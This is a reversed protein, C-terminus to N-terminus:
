IASERIQEIRGRKFFYTNKQMKVYGLAFLTSRFSKRLILLPLKQIHQEREEDLVKTWIILLWSSFRILESTTSRELCQIYEVSILLVVRSPHAKEEQYRLVFSLLLFNERLTHWLFWLHECIQCIRNLCTREAAIIGGETSILAIKSFIGVYCPKWPDSPGVKLNPLLEFSFM